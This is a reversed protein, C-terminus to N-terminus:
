GAVDDAFILFVLYRGWPYGPDRIHSVQVDLFLETSELLEPPLELEDLSDTVALYGRVGRRSAEAADRLAAELAPHAQDSRRVRGIERAGPGAAQPFPVPGPRGRGARAEQVRAWVWAANERSKAPSLEDYTLFLAALLDGTGKAGIAAHTAEPRLLVSRGSPSELTDAVLQAPTGGKAWGATLQGSSILVPVDYGAVLGLVIQDAMVEPVEGMLAAWYVFALAEATESQRVELRLPPRNARRRVANVQALLRAGVPGDGPVDVAAPRRWILPPDPRTPVLAALVGDGLIRGAPYATVSLWALDDQPDVPCRFRFQPLQLEPDRECGSVGYTGQNILASLRDAPQLLEGEVLVFGDQALLPAALHARRQASVVALAARDGERLYYAGANVVGGLLGGGLVKRLGEGWRELVEEDPADGVEGHVFQSKFGVDVAGCRASLYGRLSPHPNAGHVLVFRALERATCQMQPPTAVLGGRAAAAERFPAYWPAAQQAAFEEETLPGLHEWQEPQVTSAGFPEIPLPVERLRRLEEATTFDSSPPKGTSACASALLAVWFARPLSRARGPAGAVPRAGCSPNSSTIVPAEMTM